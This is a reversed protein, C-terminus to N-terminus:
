ADSNEVIRLCRNQHVWTPFQTRTGGHKLICTEVQKRTYVKTASKSWLEAKVRKWVRMGLGRVPEKGDLSLAVKADPPIIPSKHIVKRHKGNAPASDPLNVWHEVEYGAAMLDTAQKADVRVKM